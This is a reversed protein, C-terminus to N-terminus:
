KPAGHGRCLLIPAECIGCRTEVGAAIGALITEDTAHVELLVGSPARFLVLRVKPMGPVTM